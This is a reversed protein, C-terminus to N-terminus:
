ADLAEGLLAERAAWNRGRRYIEVAQYLTVAYVRERFHRAMELAQPYYVVEPIQAGIELATQYWGNQSRNVALHAHSHGVAEDAIRQITGWPDSCRTELILRYLGGELPPQDLRGHEIQHHYSAFTAGQHAGDPDGKPIIGTLEVFADWRELVDQVTTPHDVFAKFGRSFHRIGEGSLCHTSESTMTTNRFEEFLAEWDLGGLGAASKVMSAVLDGRLVDQRRQMIARRISPRHFVAPDNEAPEDGEDWPQQGEAEAITVALTELQAPTPLDSLPDVTDEWLALARNVLANSDLYHRRFIENVSEEDEQTIRGTMGDSVSLLNRLNGVQEFSDMLAIARLLVQSHERSAQDLGAVFFVVRSRNLWESPYGIHLPTNPDHRLTRLRLTRGICQILVKLTTPIGWLYMQCRCPSDVGESLRDHALLVRRIRSYEAYGSESHQDKEAYLAMQLAQLGQGSEDSEGDNSILHDTANILHPVKFPLGGEFDGKPPPWRVTIVDDIEQRDFAEEFARKFVEVTRRNVKAGKPKIRIITPLCTAEWREVVMPVGEEVEVPAFRSETDSSGEGPVVVVESQIQSPAVGKLILFAMSREVILDCGWGVVRRNDSRYPTATLKMIDVKALRLVNCLSALGTGGRDPKGKADPLIWHTRHAEDVILLSQREPLRCRVEERNLLLLGNCVALIYGPNPDNLYALLADTNRGIKVPMLPLEDSSLGLQAHQNLFYVREPNSLDHEAQDRIQQQPCTLIVHSYRGLEACVTAYTLAIVTKGGGMGYVVVRSGMPDPPEETVLRILDEVQFDLLNKLPM